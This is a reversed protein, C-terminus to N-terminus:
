DIIEPGENAAQDTSGNAVTVSTDLSDENPCCYRSNAGGQLAGGHIMLPHDARTQDIAPTGANEIGNNWDPSGLSSFMGRATLEDRNFEREVDETHNDGVPKLIGAGEVSVTSRGEDPSERNCELDRHEHHEHSTDQEEWFRRSYTLGLIM